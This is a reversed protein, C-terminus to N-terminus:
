KTTQYQNNLLFHLSGKSAIGFKEMTEKYSKKKKYFDRIEGVEQDSFRRIHTSSDIAHSLRQQQPKDMMNESHTGLELNGWENNLEDGDLHRVSLGKEFIKDGFKHFAQYRHVSITITKFRGGNYSFVYYGHTAKRLKVIGRPGFVNGNTDISYGKNIAEEIKEKPSM